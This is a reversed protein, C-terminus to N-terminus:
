SRTGPCLSCNVQKNEAIRIARAQHIAQRLDLAQDPKTYSEMPILGKHSGSETINTVARARTRFLGNSRSTCGGGPISAAARRLSM